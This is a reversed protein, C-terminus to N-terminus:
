GQQCHVCTPTLTGQEPSFRPSRPKLTGPSSARCSPHAPSRCRWPHGASPTRGGAEGPLLGGFRHQLSCVAEGPISCSPRPPGPPSPAGQSGDGGSARGAAPDQGGRSAARAGRRRPRSEEPTDGLAPNARSASGRGSNGAGGGRILPAKQFCKPKKKKLFTLWAGSELDLQMFRSAKLM